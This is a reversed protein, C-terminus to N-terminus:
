NRVEFDLVVKGKAHGSDLREFAEEFKELPWVSDVVPRCKGGDVLKSIEELQLGDPEMIFFHNRVDKSACDDPRMQEPPQSINILSGGDRVCWWADELSKKGICDVVVDVKNGDSEGWKRFDTTTYDLIETAGLSRVLDVNHPGCTGVVKGHTPQIFEVENSTHSASPSPISPNADSLSRFTRIGIGPCQM